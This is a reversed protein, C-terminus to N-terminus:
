FSIFQEIVTNLERHHKTPIQHRAKSIYVVDSNPIYKKFLQQYRHVYYDRAGYVLLLPVTLQSLRNTCNYLLGERYMQYLATPNAKLVYQEIEQKYKKTTGHATGLVKALLPLGRMKVTYIGLLFESQLLFTNVESFGGILIIGETRDPYSLAFEQAISGGNSYGCIIAKNIKLQDLLEYLDKALLHLTIKDDNVGSQGNGRLDFTVIQFHKSLPQQHKFTVLGM